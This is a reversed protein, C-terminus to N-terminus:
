GAAAELDQLRVTVVIAAPLGNHQGLNGSALLARLAATLADHQRQAESRLDRRAHEDPAPGDVVPSEDDPNCMGPAALKAWLAEMSARAEPTLYGTLRSMGDPGQNGLTLGRRRARDADTYDGDPHLCDMAHQALQALHEPGFETAKDALDAHVHDRTDLDVFDPLR